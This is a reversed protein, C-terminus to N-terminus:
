WLEESSDPPKQQHEQKSKNKQLQREIMLETILEAADRDPYNHLATRLKLEDIDMRYLIRLLQEFDSNILHNVYYALKQQWEATIENKEVFGSLQQLLNDQDANEDM